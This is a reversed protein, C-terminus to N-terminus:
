HYLLLYLFLSYMRFLKDGHKTGHALVLPRFRQYVRQWECQGSRTRSSWRTQEGLRQPSHTRRPVRLTLNPHLDRQLPSLPFRHPPPYPPTPLPLTQQPKTQTQHLHHLHLPSPLLTCRLPIERETNTPHQGVNTNTNVPLISPISLLSVKSVRNWHPVFVTKSGDEENTYLRQLVGSLEDETLRERKLVKKLKPISLLRSRLMLITAVLAFATNPHQRLLRALLPKSFAAM